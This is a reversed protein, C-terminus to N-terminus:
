AREIKFVVPRLGDPCCAVAVGPEDYWEFFNGNSRLTIVVLFIVDWAFPCFGSPVGDDVYFM